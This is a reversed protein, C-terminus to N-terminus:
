IQFPNSKRSNTWERWWKGILELKTEMFNTTLLKVATTKALLKETKRFSKFVCEEYKKTKMNTDLKRVSKVVNEHWWSEDPEVIRIERRIYFSINIM